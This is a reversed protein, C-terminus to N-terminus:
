AAFDNEDQADNKHRKKIAMIIIFALVISVVIGATVSVPVIWIFYDTEVTVEASDWVMGDGYKATIRYTGAKTPTFRFVSYGEYAVNGNVYWTVPTHPDTNDVGSLLFSVTEGQKVSEAGGLGNGGLIKIANYSPEHYRVEVTVTASLPTNFPDGASDVAAVIVFKGAGDESYALPDFEFAMGNMIFEENVYWNLSTKPNIGAPTIAGFFNVETVNDIYQQLKSLTYGTITVTEPDRYIADMDLFDRSTIAEFDLLPNDRGSGQIGKESHYKLMQTIQPATLAYEGIYRLKLLAAAVSVIPSAMSTGNKYGYGTKLAGYMRDADPYTSRAGGPATVDYAAACNSYEAFAPFGDAGPQYSMVGIVNGFAAPYGLGNIETPTRSNNGAAAVITASEATAEVSSRINNVFNTDPTKDGATLSMNIIDAGNEVAFTLAKNVNIYSFVDDGGSITSARIPMIKIYDSLGLARILMAAISAVHTGHSANSADTPSSSNAVVDKFVVKGTEDELLTGTFVEHAAYIGTDIVAIVVPEFDPSNPDPLTGASKWGNVAARVSPIDLYDEGLYWLKDALSDILTDGYSYPAASAYGDALGGGTFVSFAAILIVAATILIAARSAHRKYSFNRHEAVTM